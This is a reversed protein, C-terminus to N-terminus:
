RTQVDKDSREQSAIKPKVEAPAAGPAAMGRRELLSGELRYLEVFAKLYSAAAQVEAIRAALLDRQVQAVQLSTSRGRAVKEEEALVKEEQLKRSAATAVIQERSRILELYATRVDLEVLQELNALAEKSQDRALLARENVARPGRNGLAYDGSVGALVDYSERSFVDGWSRGFSDSYGSKGLTIFFDLRPLLGNRTKVLELEDRSIQLRAQNLEPRKLMALSLHDDVPELPIDTVVPQQEIIVERDLSAGPPSILRVMALRTRAVLNRADILDLNRLAVEAEIASRDTPPLRGVRVRENAEALQKRAVELSDRVIELGRVALVHDWYAEETQAVVSIAVGRLEYEGARTDLRAQRVDALNVDLGAGRLLSQTATLGIRSAKEDVDTASDDRLATSASARVSTGTPFFETLGAEASGANTVTNPLGTGSQAEKSRGASFSGFLVPDFAALEQEEFTRRLPPTYRAVQLSRNNNLAMVIASYANLRIPGTAPAAPPAGPASAPASTASDAPAAAPGSRALGVYNDTRSADFPVCSTTLCAGCIALALAAAVRWLGPGDMNRM